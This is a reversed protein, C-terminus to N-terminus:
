GRRPPLDATLGCAVQWPSGDFRIVLEVLRFLRIYMGLRVIRIPMGLRFTALQLIWWWMAATADVRIPQTWSGFRFACIWIWIVVWVWWKTFNHAHFFYPELWFMHAHLAHLFHVSDPRGSEHSLDPRAARLLRWRRQTISSTCTDQPGCVFCVARM